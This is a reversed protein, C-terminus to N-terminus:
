RAEGELSDKIVFRIPVLVWHSQPIFRPNFEWQRVAALAAMDLLPYGSSQAITLGRPRGTQMVEAKLTVRGEQRLELARRPYVPPTQHRYDGKYLVASSDKKNRNATSNTQHQPPTKQTIKKISQKEVPAQRSRAPAPTAARAAIAKLSVRLMQTQPMAESLGSMDINWAVLMNACLSLALYNLWKAAKGIIPTKRVM